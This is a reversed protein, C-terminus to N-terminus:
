QPRKAHEKNVIEKRMKIKNMCMNYQNKNTYRYLFSKLYDYRTERNLRKVYNMGYKCCYYRLAELRRKLAIEYDSTTKGELHIIRKDKFYGTKKKIIKLRRTLDPEEYYMFINEDFMGCECFVDKRIFIDAGPIFMIGDIFIDLKNCLKILQAYLIGHKDIYYFSMNRKLNKDVLKVGFMALDHNSEFKDIAFKFIPEILITDPNLFLLYTGKAVKAGVNNGEGFGKNDNNIIQVQPYNKQVYDFVNNEPSNDVVIIELKDRIDNHQFISEICDIVIELKRYSVIIVSIIIENM